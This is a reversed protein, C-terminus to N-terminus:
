SNSRQVKRLQAVTDHSSASTLQQEASKIYDEVVVRIGKRMHSEFSQLRGLSELWEPGQFLKRAVEIKFELSKKRNTTERKGFSVKIARELESM